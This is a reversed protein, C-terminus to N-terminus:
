RAEKRPTATEANGTLKAHAYATASPYRRRFDASTNREWADHAARIESGSRTALFACADPPCNYPRIDAIEASIVPKLLEAVLAKLTQGRRAAAAKVLNFESESLEVSLMKFASM